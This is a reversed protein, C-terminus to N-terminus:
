RRRKSEVAWIRARGHMLLRGGNGSVPVYEGHPFTWLTRGTRWHWAMIRDELSGAYVVGAVVAVAGSVRGGASRRWIIRGSRADACYVFGSHSGFYVRGRYYAPSSYVYAGIPIRWLLGGTRASLASMGSFVSPAFVRGGAVAVTGYVRTGASGTWIRRGSRANLAFVRGAYDGIYLRKGVLAPSSTIKVGGHFVWRVRRRDLDLAYVNGNASAFYALSGSIVPSPEAPAGLLRHWRVRGTKLSIVKVDGPAMTTTVIVGRNPDIAPSSAVRTGIRTRWLLRGSNMSRAQVIGHINNVYAVGNWVVAPFELLGGMSRSWVVRFPPRLKIAPQSQTRAATAGFLPWQLDRRWLRVTFPRLDRYPISVRRPTYGPASILARVRRPRVVEIRAHGRQDGRVTTSGIRVVATTVARKLDGDLVRVLMQPPATESGSTEATTGTAQPPSANDQRGSSCGAVAIAVVLVALFRSPPILFGEPPSAPSLSGVSSSSGGSCRILPLAPRSLLSGVFASRRAEARRSSTPTSGSCGDFGGGKKMTPFSREPV